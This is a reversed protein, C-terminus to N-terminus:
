QPTEWTHGCDPCHHAWWYRDQSRDYNGTDALAVKSARSHPCSEALAILAQQAHRIQKQYHERMEKIVDSM